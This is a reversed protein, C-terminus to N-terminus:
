EKADQQKSILEKLNPRLRSTYVAHAHKKQKGRRLKKQEEIPLQIIEM